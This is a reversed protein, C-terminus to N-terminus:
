HCSQPPIRLAFVPYAQRLPLARRDVGRNLTALDPHDLPYLDAERPRTLDDPADPFAGLIAQSGIALLDDTNSIAAAARILHELDRHKMGPTGQRDPGPRVLRKGVIPM